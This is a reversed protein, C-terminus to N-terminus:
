DNPAGTANVGMAKLLMHAASRQLADPPQEPLVDVMRGELNGDNMEIERFSVLGCPKGNARRQIERSEFLVKREGAADRYAIVVMVVERRDEAQSPRVASVRDDFEADTEGHAKAMSRVWAETIFTLAVADHAVCYLQVIRRCQAKEDDDKWPTVLAHVGNKTHVIFMASVEGRDLLVKEAFAMDFRLQKAWDGRPATKPKRSM